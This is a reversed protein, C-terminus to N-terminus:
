RRVPCRKSLRLAAHRSGEARNDISPWGWLCLSTVVAPLPWVSPDVTSRLKKSLKWNNTATTSAACMVCVKEGVKRVNMKVQAQPMDRLREQYIKQIEEHEARLSSLSGPLTDEERRERDM